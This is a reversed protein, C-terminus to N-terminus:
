LWNPKTPWEIQTPFGAQQPVDLLLQRYQALQTQQEASLSNYWVPNIRDIAYLLSSRQSRILEATAQVNVIWSKTDYKWDYKVTDSSPDTSKEVVTTTPIDVYFRSGTFNGEIFSKDSLHSEIDAYSPASMTSIIEGTTPDFITYNM